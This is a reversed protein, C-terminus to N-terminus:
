RALRLSNGIVLLSSLAMGLGSAWPPMLGVVALPVCAANYLGAWLMNQRVVRMTHQALRRADAVDALRNSVVVADAHSRAVLAGEGMAFSVDAQALVPADNLGDGLMAVRQDQQQAQRLAALKDEPQLGRQQTGAASAAVQLGLRAAMAAAREPSDGSLLTLTVGDAQLQRLAPEVGARLREAFLLRLLPRGECGLWVEPDPSPAADAAGVFAASGLRWERGEDDQAQLGQGPREQVAQWAFAEPGRGEAALAASLPHSSWGALSAARARLESASGWAPAGPQLQAESCRLSGETLTGTKDLFLHRVQALTELADLRRLLVGRRALTGAAALLASPAALSLACPCTVVLVSVAVWVARSPDIFWWALASGAALLMVVALFPGAWRDASRALSPRQSLAQRMLAVIAEHRTDAGVREVRMEVPAQLNLSGAVVADGAQKPVPRSEGSLLAEDAQTSGRTLVGDAAFAQGAPVRLVDGAAVRQASVTETSGDARVRLVATPLQGISAELSEAARHRAAMELWRGGLLFAVFMTISDFYVDHGFLGGPDFAAGSSAVFGVAVGIAVPADMGIRGQRAARWAGTFFPAASFWLVPLTLLWSAWDLLQKLDPALEGAAAFYAPAAMMMIQMSCFAAVFLRWTASRRETLRQARAGAATDPAAGYGARQVADVLASASTAAVDWRVSARQAAGNVSASLVGPVQRLANEIISACSGCHLGSLCLASEAVRRGDADASFSTFARLELPDDLTALLPPAAFGPAAAAAAETM